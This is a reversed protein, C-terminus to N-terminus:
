VSFGSEEAKKDQIRAGFIIVCLVLTVIGIIYPTNMSLEYIGGGILPGIIRGLSGFSQFVGLSAGQHNHNNKTVLSSSTPTMLSNGTMFVMTGLVLLVANPAWLMWLFAFACLLAGFKAPKADGFRKVVKGILMGQVIVGVIGIIMFVMGMEKPGFGVREAAFLTFTTEFMAMTFSLVFSFVFLPFLPDRIVSFNLRVKKKPEKNPEKLTEPLFKWAFPLVLLALTGAFYFPLTFSYDGLWGGLAPGFVMGLGMAAGLMGMSKSRDAGETIDAMYAMATPLTASSVMGSLARFAILLPLNGALGFLFFTIGYGSLGILLVPRRGIRDSLRGWFPAFFFQMISYASMFLGLSFAGGGLEEILFPLIPIVIGFGVMVLFQVLILIIMPRIFEKKM